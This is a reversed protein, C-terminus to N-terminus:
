YGPDLAYEARGFVVFWRVPEGCLRWDGEKQKRVAMVRAPGSRTEKRGLAAAERVYRIYATKGSPSIRVVEAPYKDSGIHVTAEGGVTPEPDQIVYTTM